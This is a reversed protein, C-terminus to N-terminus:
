RQVSRTLTFVFVGVLFVGLFGEMQALLHLGPTLGAPGNLVLTVFSEMSLIVYGAFGAGYPGNDFGVGPPLVVTDYVYYAATWLSVIFLSVGVVRQPKEGYGTVLWLFVNSLWAYLNRCLRYSHKGVEPWRSEAYQRKLTWKQSVGTDLGSLPNAEADISKNKQPPRPGTAAEPIKGNQGRESAGDNRKADRKNVRPDSVDADVFEQSHEEHKTTTEGGNPAKPVSRKPSGDSSNNTKGGWAIRLDAASALVRQWHQLRAYKMERIFFSAAAANEGEGIAGKKAKAFTAELTNLDLRREELPTSSANDLIADAVAVTLQEFIIRAAEGPPYDDRGTNLQYELANALGASRKRSNAFSVSSPRDSPDDCLSFWLRRIPQQVDELANKEIRVSPADALQELIDTSESKWSENTRHTLLASVIRRIVSEKEFCIHDSEEIADALRERHLQACRGLAPWGNPTTQPDSWLELVLRIQSWDSNSLYLASEGDVPRSSKVAAGTEVSVDCTWQQITRVANSLPDDIWDTPSNNTTPRGGTDELHASVFDSVLEVAGSMDNSHRMEECFKELSADQELLDSLVSRAVVVATGEPVTSEGLSPSRGLITAARGISREGQDRLGVLDWGVNHFSQRNKSFQFGDFETEVFRVYEFTKAGPQPEKVNVKGLTADRLDYVTRETSSVGSTESISQAFRGATVSAGRLLVTTGTPYTSERLDLTLEGQVTSHSLDIPGRIGRGGTFRVSDIALDEKFVTDIFSCPGGVTVPAFSCDSAHTSGSVTFPGNIRTRIIALDGAVSVEKISTPGGFDANMAIVDEEIDVKSLRVEAGSDTGALNVSGGISSRAISIDLEISAGLLSVYGEITTEVLSVEAGVDTGLRVDGGVNSSLIRVGEGVTGEDCVVNDAIEANGLRLAGRVTASWLNIEGDIKVNGFNADGGIEAERLEIDRNILASQLNLDSGVRVAELTLGGSLTAHKLVLEDVLAVDAKIDHNVLANSLDVIGAQCGRIDIPYRNTADLSEYTLNIDGFQAGIFQKRRRSVSDGNTAESNPPATECIPLDTEDSPGGDFDPPSQKSLSGNVAALFM